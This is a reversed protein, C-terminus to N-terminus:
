AASQLDTSMPEIGTRAEMLPLEIESLNYQLSMQRAFEQRQSQATTKKTPPLGTIEYFTYSKAYEEILRSKGIRRRGRVVVMSSSGKNSLRELLQLEADRGYFKSVMVRGWFLFMPKCCWCVM